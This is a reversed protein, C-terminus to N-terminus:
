IHHKAHNGIRKVHHEYVVNGMAGNPDPRDYRVTIIKRGMFTQVETVTGSRDEGYGDVWAPIIVRDFEKIEPKM